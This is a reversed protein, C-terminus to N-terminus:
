FFFCFSFFLFALYIFLLSLLRSFSNLYHAYRVRMLRLDISFIQFTDVVNTWFLELLYVGLMNELDHTNM